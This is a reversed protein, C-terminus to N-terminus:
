QNLTKSFANIIIVGLTILAIGFISYIDLKQGYRYYAITTILIIGFGAWVAYAVGVSIERLVLSLFYFAFCYGIVTIISPLLKSFGNSEKLASTAIVESIIAVVLYIWKM